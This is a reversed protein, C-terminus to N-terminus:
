RNEDEKSQDYWKDMNEQKSWDKAVTRFIERSNIKNGSEKEVKMRKNLKDEMYFNYTSKQKKVVGTGNNRRNVAEDYFKAYAQNRKQEYNRMELKAMRKYKQKELEPLLKWEEAIKTILKRRDIKPKAPLRPAKKDPIKFENQDNNEAIDHSSETFNSPNTSRNDSQSQQDEEHM